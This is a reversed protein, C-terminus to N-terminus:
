HVWKKMATALTEHYGCKVEIMQEKNLELSVFLLPGAGQGAVSACCHVCPTLRATM